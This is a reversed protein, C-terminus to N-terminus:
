ALAKELIFVEVSGVPQRGKTSYGRAEYYCRLAESGAWCDLRAHIGGANVIGSEAHRLLEAGTGPQADRPRVLAEIYGCKPSASFGDWVDPYNLPPHDSVAITGLPVDRQDLALFMEGRDVFGALFAVRGPDASVPTTGWQDTIGQSVMWAIADDFLAVVSNVDDTRAPRIDIVTTISSTV